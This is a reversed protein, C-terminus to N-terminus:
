YKVVDRQAMLVRRTAIALTIRCSTGVAQALTRWDSILPSIMGGLSSDGNTALAEFVGSTSNGPNIDSRVAATLGPPFIQENDSAGTQAAAVNFQHLCVCFLSSARL